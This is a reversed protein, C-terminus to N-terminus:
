AEDLTFGAASAQERISQIIATDLSRPDGDTRRAREAQLWAEREKALAALRAQIDARQKKQEAVHAALEADDMDRFAEPLSTRDVAALDLIEADLADVLDWRGNDYMSSSKSLSRQVVTAMGYDAANDDQAVQNRMGEVGAAGYYVYTANVEQGLRAIEEDQPAAIYEIVQDHDITLFRGGALTAAENWEAAEVDGSSGCLVTEVVIGRDRARGVALRHDVPGQSFAENGAIYLM